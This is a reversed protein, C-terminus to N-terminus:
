FNFFFGNPGVGVKASDIITGDNTYRFMYGKQGFFPSYGGYINHQVPDIGLGYFTKSVLAVAPLSSGTINFKFVWGDYSSLGSLYYLEDKAKNLTLKLPHEFQSFNFEAEVSDTVPNIRILKGGIDDSTGGTFDLGISGHCLVWIKGDKDTVVSNPNIGATLTTIVTDANANIVTITSDNGFGGVNTVYVKNNIMVMQEPGSGTPINGNISFSSLNVVKINDDFWDSVYAKNPAVALFFRPGAFGTITGQSKFFNRDVVEIKQSNNIVLYLNNNHLVMSQAVDGLPLNNAKFFVDDIITKDNINFYSISADSSGFNGENIILVGNRVSSIGGGGTTTNEDKKCTYFLSTIPILIAFILISKKM